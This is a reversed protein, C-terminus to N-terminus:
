FIVKLLEANIPTTYQWNGYMDTFAETVIVGGSVYVAQGEKLCDKHENYLSADVIVTHVAFKNTETKSKIYLKYKDIVKYPSTVKVPTHILNGIVSKQVVSNLLM